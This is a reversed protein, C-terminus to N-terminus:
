ICRPMLACKDAVIPAVENESRISVAPVPIFLGASGNIRASDIPASAIPRVDGPERLRIFLFVVTIVIVIVITTVITVVSSLRENVEPSFIVQNQIIGVSGVNM